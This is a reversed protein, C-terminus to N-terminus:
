EGPEILGLHGDKRRFLVALRGTAAERFVLVEDPRGELELAAEDLTMPKLTTRRARVVRPETRAGRPETAPPVLRPSAAGKRQRRKARQRQAQRELRDIADAVSRRPSDSVAVASLDVLRSHVSVEAVRRRKDAALTVHARTTGPLLRVVKELKRAALTRLEEPIETQRGTFEIKM